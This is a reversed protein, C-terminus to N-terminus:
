STEGRRVYLMTGVGVIQSEASCGLLSAIAVIAGVTVLGSAWQRLESM